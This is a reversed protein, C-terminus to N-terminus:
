NFYQTTFQLITNIWSEKDKQTIHKKLKNMPDLNERKILENWIYCENIKCFFRDTILVFRNFKPYFHDVKSLYQLRNCCIRSNRENGMKLIKETYELILM